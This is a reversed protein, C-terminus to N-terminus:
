VKDVAKKFEEIGDRIDKEIVLIEYTKKYKKKWEDVFIKKWEKNDKGCISCKYDIVFYENDCEKFLAVELNSCYKSRTINVIQYDHKHKSKTPTPKDRTKIRKLDNSTTNEDQAYPAQKTETASILNM